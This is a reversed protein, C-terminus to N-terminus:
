DIVFTAPLTAPDPLGLWGPQTEPDLMLRLPTKWHTNALSRMPKGDLFWTLLDAEWLLGWTHFGASPDEKLPGEQQHPLEGTQGPYRIVPANNFLTRGYQAQRPSLEFVDIEVWREPQQHYFWFASTGASAGARCRIEFYGYRFRKLRRM